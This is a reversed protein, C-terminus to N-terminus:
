DLRPRESADDPWFLVDEHSPWAVRIEKGAPAQVFTVTPDPTQGPLPLIVAAFRPNIARTDARLLPFAGPGHYDETHAVDTRVALPAVADLRLLLRTPRGPTGVIRMPATVQGSEAERFLPNRRAEELAPPNAADTTLALCDLEAAPERRRFVLRHVGPELDYVVPKRAVGEAVKGWTWSRRGPTHWDIQRGDDMQVFFSDAKAPEPAQTRVRAWLTYSGAERVDLDFAVEGPPQTGEAVSAVADDSDTWPTDVYAQGSASDPTLVAGNAAVAAELNPAIMMQWTFDHAEDDKRIDDLVVAYAPADGRPYVFFAHRRAHAVGVGPMGQHNKQYAETCDALAYGRRENTDYVAITGHTGLGAGSLAQGAGSRFLM